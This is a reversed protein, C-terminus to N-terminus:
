WLEILEIQHAEDFDSLDIPTTKEFFHNNILSSDFPMPAGVIVYRYDDNTILQMDDIQYSKGSDISFSTDETEEEFVLMPPYDPSICLINVWLIESTKNTINLSLTSDNLESVATLGDTQEFSNICQCLVSYLYESDDEDAVARFSVGTQPKQKTEGTKRIEDSIRASLNNSKAKSQAILSSVTMSGTSCSTYIKGTPKDLIKLQANAAIIINSNVSLEMKPEAKMKRGNTVVEVNGTAKFVSYREKADLSLNFLVILIILLYKKM